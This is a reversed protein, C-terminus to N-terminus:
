KDKKKDHLQFAMAYVIIDEKEKTSKAQEYFDRQIKM